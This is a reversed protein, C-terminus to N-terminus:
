KKRGEITFMVPINDLEAKIAAKIENKNKDFLGVHKSGYAQFYEYGEVFLTMGDRSHSEVPIDFSFGDDTATINTMRVLVDGDEVVELMSEDEASRRITVTGTEDYDSGLYTPSGGLIDYFKMDYDFTGLATIRIDEQRPEENEEKSCSSFGVMFLALSLMFLNKIKFTKM